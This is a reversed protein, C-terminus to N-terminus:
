ADEASRVLQRLSAVAEGLRGGKARRPPPSAERELIRMQEDLIRSAEPTPVVNRAPDLGEFALYRQPDRRRWEIVREQCRHESTHRLTFDHWPHYTKLTPEWQVALGLNKFRTYVDMGNAHNGSGFIPHQEYGNIELLWKRRVALCGGYNTPNRLVCHRELVDFRHSPLSGRELEDYRYAYTVLKEYRQQREWVRSLFDPRVIQDADPVVVVEGRARRIGENFCYSSHYTGSRGLCTQQVRPWADLRPNARRYYEIWLIEYDDEPLDQQSFYQAGFLNERFSGDIMVVSIKM